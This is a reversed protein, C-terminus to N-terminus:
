SASFNYRLQMIEKVSDDRGELSRNEQLWLRELTHKHTRWDEDPIKKAKQTMM